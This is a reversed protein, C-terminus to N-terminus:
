NFVWTYKIDVPVNLNNQYFTSSLSSGCMPKLFNRQLHLCRKFNLSPANIPGVVCWSSTLSLFYCWFVSLQVRCCFSSLCGGLFLPSALMSLWSPQLAFGDLVEWSPPSLTEGDWTFLLWVHLIIQLQQLLDFIIWAFFSGGFPRFTHFIFTWVEVLLQLRSTKASWKCTDM